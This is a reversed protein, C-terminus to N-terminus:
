EGQVEVSDRVKRVEEALDKGEAVALLIDPLAALVAARRPDEPQDIPAAVIVAKEDVVEVTEGIGVERNLEYWGPGPRETDHVKHIENKNVVKVWLKMAIM